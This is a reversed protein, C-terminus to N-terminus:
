EMCSVSSYTTSCSSLPSHLDRVYKHGSDSAMPLISSFHIASDGEGISGEGVGPM